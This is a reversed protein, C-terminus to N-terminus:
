ARVLPSCRRRWDTFRLPSPSSWWRLSSCPGRQRRHQLLRRARWQGGPCPGACGGPEACTGGGPESYSGTCPLANFSLATSADAAPARSPSRLTSRTRQTRRGRSPRTGRGRSSRVDPLIRQRQLWAHASPWPFAAGGVSSPRTFPRSPPSSPPSYDKRFIIVDAFRFLHPILVIPRAL